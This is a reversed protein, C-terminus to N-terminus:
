QLIWLEVALVYTCLYRSGHQRAESQFLEPWTLAPCCAVNM